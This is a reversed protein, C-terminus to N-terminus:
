TSKGKKDFEMKFHVFKDGTDEMIVTADYTVGKKESFLGTMRVRGNKLLAAAVKKTLEKRKATFFRDNKWLAFGCPPKDFYGECFFSKKGEVVNKGCRPCVGVVPRNSQSLASAASVGQYTKVLGELMAEIGSLFDAPDLTGRQVESLKEEWDATLKASKLTDPMVRILATGKETPVLQKKKREAFGSKMLKEIIGARTAPTGLGAREVDEIKAFDEASAHEMASLLTDETFRAPPKTVGGKVAAEADQISEGKTLVPLAASSETPKKEIAALFARETKKWGETIETRGKATFLAGGCELTVATESYTHAEGVACLLRVAIMYLINREGKPLAALNAGAVEPTPILAHHDSVRASNVVLGANVAPPAADTFPLAGSVLACLDPLGDAMDDTLYRSDTRPYTALKKEYLMQVYDLTQQATYDFLRNAERQLTTLDYLKPPRETKEQTQASRVVASKGLCVTRLTEADTRSTFRDSSAKFSHLDLEVTYFKEKQFGSIAAEREVLLALTPTVVRGVNLVKGGYVTTFLRTANIGVLWDAKARCLAAAYLNDYRASDALADFGRRIASDEMSSIWLRKVPKRCGCLHYVLRFILEGERGADTACVIGDVREDAMLAALVDYQKKTDPLVTYRWEQPVIPLDDYAWKSYRPDYVDASALEVLHGVCWSVLWGGGEVYGDKRSKAGLVKAISMAVSPKESIVLQM